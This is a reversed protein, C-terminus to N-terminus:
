NLNLCCMTFNTFDVAALWLQDKNGLFSMYRIVALSACIVVIMIWLM